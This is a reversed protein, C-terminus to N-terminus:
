PKVIVGVGIAGVVILFILIAAMVTMRRVNVRRKRLDEETVIKSISGLVPLNFFSKLDETGKFSQDTYEVLYICGLGAMGSLLFGLFFIKKRDPKIPRLPLRAPEVIRFKTKNESSELQQTIRATELRKLLMTYIEGNVKTDRTLRVLEQEQKPISEATEIYQQPEVGAEEAAKEIEEIRKEKLQEIRRRLEKVRPHEETNDVLLATLRAKLEATEENLRSAIPMQLAYTEKFQRLSEESDELKKKYVELQGKIFDIATSAEESQSALNRRIFIDSITNVIRQAIVPDPGQYSIMLIDQGKMKVSIHRRINLILREFALPGKVDKNLGLEEALQVMRPWGLIEERLMHLRQGVTTSVALGSILPNIMKEEEILMVVRAEYTRPLFSFTTVSAVCVCVFPLIFFWKRRFFIRIYEQWDLGGVNKKM